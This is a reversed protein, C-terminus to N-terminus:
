FFLCQAHTNLPLLIVKFFDYSNINISDSMGCGWMLFNNRFFELMSM